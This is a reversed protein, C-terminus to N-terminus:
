LNDTTNTDSRMVKRVIEPLSKLAALEKWRTRADVAPIGFITAGNKFDSGVGSKALIKVNDGITLGHALGVQGYLTCGDGIVTKGSIGVQAAILCNKGIVAGHGVHVLCDIKSGSGIITDGSVGRNITCNAGIYVDDHIIVRGGSTWKRYKGDERKFYFADSGIVTNSQIITREGIECYERVVAGAEIRTDKGIRVSAGIVVGPEIVASPDIEATPDITTGIPRFPRFREVLTNYVDFPKECVLITKGPPCEVEQNLLLISAESRLAKNFYKEVDSFTIDGPEVKHIENIGTAKQTSDGLLKAGFESAISSVPIPEPFKM